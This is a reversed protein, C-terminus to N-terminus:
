PHLSPVASKFPPATDVPWHRVIEDALFRTGFPKPLVVRLGAIRDLEDKPLMDAHGTILIFHSDPRLRHAQRMFEAGNIEPMFYDTVVVAPDLHKLAELAARPRSFTHLPCALNEGLVLALLEVYSDEDDLIIVCKQPLAGNV